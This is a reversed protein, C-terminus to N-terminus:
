SSQETRDKAQAESANRQHTTRLVYNRLQTLAECLLLRYSGEPAPVATVPNWTIEDATILDCGTVAIAAQAPQVSRGCDQTRRAQDRRRRHAAVRCGPRCHRQTSRAPTFGRGCGACFVGKTVAPLAQSALDGPPASDAHPEAGQRKELPEM